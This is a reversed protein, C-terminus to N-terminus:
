GNVMRRRRPNGMVPRGTHDLSGATCLRAVDNVLDRVAEHETEGWYAVSRVNLMAFFGDRAGEWAGEKGPVITWDIPGPYSQVPLDSPTEDAADVSPLEADVYVHKTGDPYGDIPEPTEASPVRRFFVAEDHHDVQLAWSRDHPTVLLALAATEPFRQVHIHKPDSV